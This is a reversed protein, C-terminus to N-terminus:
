GTSTRGRSSSPAHPLSRRSCPRTMSSSRCRRPSRVLRFRLSWCRSRPRKSRSRRGTDAAPGAHGRRHAVAGRARSGVMRGSRCVVTDTLVLAARHRRRARCRVASDHVVPRRADDASRLSAAPEGRLAAEALASRHSGGAALRAADAVGAAQRALSPANRSKRALDAYVEVNAWFPDWSDLPARTGYVCRETEDVFSGFLHDWAMSIGGYNRDIYRDNVAHHVRHNSPSSFWRDFWGLSGIQETHIWYQYLLNVVAAVAFVEPPIGAIAMPLYFIWGLLASSSTQRLATSLNYEQSQHHVVHSAWFVASEHGVRHFWYYCFDYSVIGLLWVWWQDAPLQWM